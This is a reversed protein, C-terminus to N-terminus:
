ELNRTLILIHSPNLLSAYRDRVAYGQARAVADVRDDPLYAANTGLLVIGGPALRDAADRLFREITETGAEGGCWDTERDHLADIGLGVGVARPIYVANFFILDYPGPCNAFLDGAVLDIAAGNRACIRRAHAVYDTDIDSATIRAHIRRVLFIPLIAYPGTGVELVRMDPRVHRLLPRRLMLTTWDWHIRPGGEIRVGFLARTLLANRRVVRNLFALSAARIAEM